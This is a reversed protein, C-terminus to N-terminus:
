KRNGKINLSRLYHHIEELSKFDRPNDSPIIPTLEIEPEEILSTEEEDKESKFDRLNTSPIPESLEILVTEKLKLENKSELAEM